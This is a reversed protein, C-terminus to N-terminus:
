SKAGHKQAVKWQYWLVFSLLIFSAGLLVLAISIAGAYDYQELRSM